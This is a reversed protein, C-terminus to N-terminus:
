YIKTAHQLFAKYNKSNSKASKRELIVKYNYDRVSFYYEKRHNKDVM